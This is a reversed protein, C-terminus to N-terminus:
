PAAGAQTHTSLYAAVREGVNRRINSFFLGYDYIHYNGPGLFESNFHESRIESVLLRGENCRADAVGREIRQPGDFSVAGLNEAFDAREGDAHWTLPNVCLDNATDRFPELEAFEFIIASALKSGALERLPL